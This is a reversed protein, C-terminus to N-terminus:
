PVAIVAQSAGLIAASYNCKYIRIAAAPTVPGAGEGPQRKLPSIGSHSVFNSHRNLM